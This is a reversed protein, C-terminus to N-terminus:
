RRDIATGPAAPPVLRMERLYMWFSLLPIIPGHSYEPTSWATGLSVIGDWFVLAAGLCAALLWWLGARPWATSRRAM